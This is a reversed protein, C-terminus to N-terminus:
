TTARSARRPAHRPLRALARVARALQRRPHALNSGLGVFAVRRRGDRGTLRRARRTAAPAASADGDDDRRKRGRGRSRRRKKPAEDPKLMAEREDDSADQFRTWWDVLAQPM